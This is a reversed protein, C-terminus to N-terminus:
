ETKVQEVQNESAGHFAEVQLQNAAIEVIRIILYFKNFPAFKSHPELIYNLEM